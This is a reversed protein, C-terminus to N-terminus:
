AHCRFSTASKRRPISAAARRARAALSDQACQIDDLRRHHRGQRSDPLRDATGLALATVNSDHLSDVTAFEAGALLEGRPVQHQGPRVDRGPERPVPGQAARRIRAGHRQLRAGRNGLQTQQRLRRLELDDQQRHLRGAQRVDHRGEHRQERGCSDDVDPRRLLRRAYVDRPRQAGELGPTAVDGSGNQALPISVLKGGVSFQNDDLTNQFRFQFTVNEVAGGNNTVHIEYIANPDLKFYNPGGYPAQLPLYNAVLTVYGERGPEYSRFMYFDTGDLQPQTAIFPAERHSSAGAPPTIALSAGVLLPLLALRFIPRTPIAISM